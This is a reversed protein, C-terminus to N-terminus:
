KSQALTLILLNKLNLVTPGLSYKQSLIDLTITSFLDLIVPQQTMVLESKLIRGFENHKM